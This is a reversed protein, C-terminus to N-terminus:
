SMSGDQYGAEFGAIWAAQESTFPEGDKRESVHAMVFINWTTEIEDAFKAEFRERMRRFFTESDSM